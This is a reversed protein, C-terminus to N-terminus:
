RKEVVVWARKRMNNLAFRAIERGALTSANAIADVTCRQWNVGLVRSVEYSAQHSLGCGKAKRWAQWTFCRLVPSPQYTECEM